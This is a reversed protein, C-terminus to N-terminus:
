KLSAPIDKEQVQGIISKVAEKCVEESAQGFLQGYQKVLNDVVKQNNDGTIKVTKRNKDIKLGSVKKAEQWAIPGIILEQEKIITFIIEEFVRM